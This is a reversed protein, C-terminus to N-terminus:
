ALNRQWGVQVAEASFVPTWSGGYQPTRLRMIGQLCAPHAPLSAKQVAETSFQLRM